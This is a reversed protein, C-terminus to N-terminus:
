RSTKAQRNSSRNREVYDEIDRPDYRKLRPGVKIFPIEGTNALGWLARPSIGLLKAAERENILEPVPPPPQSPAPPTTGAAGLQGQQEQQMKELLDVESQGNENWDDAGRLSTLDIPQM